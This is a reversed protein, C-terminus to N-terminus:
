RRTYYLTRGEVIKLIRLEGKFPNRFGQPRGVQIDLQNFASIHTITEKGNRDGLHVWM